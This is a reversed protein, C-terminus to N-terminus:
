KKKRCHYKVTNLDIGLAEAIAKQKMGKAKLEQIAQKTNKGRDSSYPKREKQIGPTARHREKLSESAFGSIAIGGFSECIDLVTKFNNESTTETYGDPMNEMSEVKCLLQKKCLSEASRCSFVNDFTVIAINSMKYKNKNNQDKIRNVPNVAIGFKINGTNNGADNFIANIYFIKQHPNACSPCGSGSLITQSVSCQTGHDPCEWLVKHSYGIKGEYWGLFTFGKNSLSQMVELTIQNREEVSRTSHSHNM